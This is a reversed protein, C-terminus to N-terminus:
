KLRCRLRLRPVFSLRLFEVDTQRGQSLCGHVNEEGLILLGASYVHVNGLYKTLVHVFLVLKEKSKSTKKITVVKIRYPGCSINEAGCCQKSPFYNGIDSAICTNTIFNPQRTSGSHDLGSGSAIYFFFKIINKIFPISVTNFWIRIRFSKERSM